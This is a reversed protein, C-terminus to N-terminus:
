AHISSRFLNHCLPLRLSAVSVTAYTKWAGARPRLVKAGILAALGGTMHVVGSGAFDVMGVDALPSTNAASLFGDGAWVWHVVVLLLPPYRPLPADAFAPEALPQSLPPRLFCCEGPYVLSALTLSYLCFAIVTCREAVAGSLITAATAAFAFQFFFNAYTDRDEFNSLAFRNSGIFGNGGGEAQGYAFGYGFLWFGLAAFCPDLLNKLLISKVSHHRVSGSEVMAFGCQMFFVLVGCILLWLTTLAEDTSLTGAAGKDHGDAALRRSREGEDSTASRSASKILERVESETCRQSDLCAGQSDDAATTTTAAFAVLVAILATPVRM